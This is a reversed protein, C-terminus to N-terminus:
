NEHELMALEVKEEAISEDDGWLPVLSPAPLMM